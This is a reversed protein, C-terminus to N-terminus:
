DVFLVDDFCLSFFYAIDDDFLWAMKSIMLVYVLAILLIIKMRGWKSSTLCMNIIHAIEGGSVYCVLFVGVRAFM